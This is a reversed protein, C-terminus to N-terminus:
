NTRNVCVLMCIVQFMIWYKILILTEKTDLSSVTLRMDSIIDMVCKKWQKRRRGRLKFKGWEKDFIQTCFSNM